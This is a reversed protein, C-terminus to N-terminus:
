FPMGSMFFHFGLFPSITIHGEYFYFHQLSLVYLPSDTFLDCISIFHLVQSIPVQFSCKNRSM